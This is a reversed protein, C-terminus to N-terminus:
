VAAISAAIIRCSERIEDATITLPPAIRISNPNFLFWDIILGAELCKSIVKKVVNFSELELAILLGASRYEKVGYLNQLLERFLKSKVRATKHLNESLIVELSALAAACCVANGGFTTIHGLAPDHSLSVMIERSSVFAGIPLGGGMGKALVLVDPVVGYNEFAFLSGTRGFGTQIEDFILLTGMETCRSRVARIFEETGSVVGAEGQVPEIIVCAIEETIKNLEETSNFTLQRVGPLLPRFPKKMAEDGMISLSGQTSGHYANKFSIIKKRGTSKKALKLAGEV